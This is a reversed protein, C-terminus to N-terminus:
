GHSTTEGELQLEITDGSKILSYPKPKQAKVRGGQGIFEVTLGLKKALDSADDSSKGSFDPCSYITDYPGLSVVLSLSDRVPEDQSPRQSIIVDKAITRSHVRVIRDIRLGNKLIISEADQLQQGILDPVSQIKPGKSLFVKIGREEKVKDGPPIDQRSIRGATITPDYEEGEVKLYLGGKTLLDDAEIVTKGRLNPVEVTKSFSMIKFTLFGALLGMLIFGFLYLPLTFIKKLSKQM